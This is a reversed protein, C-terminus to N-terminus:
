GGHLGARHRLQRPMRRVRHQLEGDPSVSVPTHMGDRRHHAISKTLRRLTEGDASLRRGDRLEPDPLRSYTERRGAGPSVDSLLHGARSHQDASVRAQGRDLTVGEDSIFGFHEQWLHLLPLRRAANKNPRIIASRKMWKGSWSPRFTTTCRRTWLHRSITCPAKRRRCKTTKSSSRSRNTERDSLHLDDEEYVLLNTSDVSTPPGLISEVQKKPEDRELGRRRKGENSRKASAPADLCLGRGGALILAIAGSEFHKKM